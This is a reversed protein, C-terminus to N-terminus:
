LKHVTHDHLLDANHPKQSATVFFPDRGRDM